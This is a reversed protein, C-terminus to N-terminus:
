SEMKMAWRVNHGAIVDNNTTTTDRRWRVNLQKTLHSISEDSDFGVYDCEAYFFPKDEINLGIKKRQNQFFRIVDALFGRLRLGDNMKEDFLIIDDVDTKTTLHRADVVHLADVNWEEVIDKQWKILAYPNMTYITAKALPQRVKQPRKKLGSAIVKRVFVVQDGLSQRASLLFAETPISDGYSGSFLVSM